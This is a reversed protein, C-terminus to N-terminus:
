AQDIPSTHVRGLQAQNEEGSGEAITLILQDDEGPTLIGGGTDDTPTWHQAKCTQHIYGLNWEAGDIEVTLHWTVRVWCPLSLPRDTDQSVSLASWSTVVHHGEVLAAAHLWGVAQGQEVTSLEPVRLQQPIKTQLTRLALCISLQSLYDPEADGSVLDEPLQALSLAPPGGPVGVKIRCGAKLAHLAALSEAALTPNAGSIDPLTVGFTVTHDRLDIRFEVTVIDALDRGTWALRETGDRAETPRQMALSLTAVLNGDHDFGRLEFPRTEDNALVSVSIREMDAFSFGGPLEATVVSAPVDTFPIGYGLFDRMQQRVDDSEATITVQLDVPLPRDLHAEDYHAIIDLQAMTGDEIVVASFAAGPAPTMVPQSDQPALQASLRYKYHPDTKNLASVISRISALAAVPQLVTSPETAGTVGLTQVLTRATDLVYQQGNNFYYDVIQPYDAAWNDVTTLGIWDSPIGSDATLESLWERDERTPDIPRVVHWATVRINKEKTYALLSNWSKTIQREQSRDRTTTFKKIQFVEWRHSAHPVLVDIGGDGRSPRIRQGRPHERLLMMAIVAEIEDGSYREWPVRGPM